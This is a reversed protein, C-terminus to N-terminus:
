EHSENGCPPWLEALADTLHVLDQRQQAATLTVRLRAQGRAVTPYRMARVFLGKELLAQEMRVAKAEDGVLVPQIPGHVAALPLNKESALRRFAAINAFLRERLPEQQSVTIAAQATAAVAPPLATNFLYTRATQVLLEILPRPGAIFAGAAAFAKGLTGCLLPVHNEKLGAASVSGQGNNAAPPGFVGIGHADDVALLVGNRECVAALQPLPATDGDMSFVADSCVLGIKERGIRGIKDQLDAADAHRYRRLACGALRASDILSAHNLRDELVQQGRECFVQALALNALYGSSFVVAAERGTLTALRNELEALPQSYGSVLASGTSGCGHERMAAAAAEALAPHTNLGLYDNSCFNLCSRGYLRIWRGAATERVRRQRHLGARALARLRQQAQQVAFSAQQTDVATM